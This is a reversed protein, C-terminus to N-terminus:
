AGGKRPQPAPVEVPTTLILRVEQGANAIFYPKAGAYRRTVADALAPITQQMVSSQYTTGNAGTTASQSPVQNDVVQGLLAVLFTPGIARLINSKYKGHLGMTGDLQAANTGALAIERGDPLVLTTFQAGIRDVGPQVDTQFEGVLRSGQPVLLISATPTDYVNRTVMAVIPGANRTDIRSALVAPIIAGTGLVRASPPAKPKEAEYFGDAGEAKAREKDEGSLREALTKGEPKPYNEYYAPKDPESSGSAAGQGVGPQGGLPPLGATSATQQLSPATAMVERQAAELAALRPDIPPLGPQGAPAAGLVQDMVAQADDQQKNGAKRAAEAAIRDLESKADAETGSKMRQLAELREQEKKAEAKARPDNLTVTVSAVLLFVGIGAFALLVMKRNIPKKTPAGGPPPAVAPASASM